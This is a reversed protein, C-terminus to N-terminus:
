CVPFSILCGKDFPDTFSTDKCNPPLSHYGQSISQSMNLDSKGLSAMDDDSIIDYEDVYRCSTVHHREYTENSQTMQGRVVADVFYKCELLNRMKLQDHISKRWFPHMRTQGRTHSFTRRRSKTTSRYTQVSTVYDETDESEDLEKLTEFEKRLYVNARDAISGSQVKTENERGTQARIAAILDLRTLQQVAIDASFVSANTVSPRRLDTQKNIYDVMNKNIKIKPRSCNRSTDLQIFKETQTSNRQQLQWLVNDRWWNVGSFTQSSLHPFKCVPFAKPIQCTDDSCSRCIKYKEKIENVNNFVSNELNAVLVSDSMTIDISQNVEILSQQSSIHNTKKEGVKRIDVNASRTHSMKVPNSMLHRTNEGNRSESRFKGACFEERTSPIIIYEDVDLVFPKRATSGSVTGIPLGPALDRKDNSFDVSIIDYDSIDLPKEKVKFLKQKCTCRDVEDDGYYGSLNSGDESFHGSESSYSLSSRKERLRRFLRSPKSKKRQSTRSSKPSTREQWSSDVKKLM